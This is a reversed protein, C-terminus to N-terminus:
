ARDAKTRIEHRLDKLDDRISGLVEVIGQQTAMIRAMTVAEDRGQGELAHVRATLAELTQGITDVRWRQRETGVRYSGWLGFLALIFQWWDRVAASILNEPM